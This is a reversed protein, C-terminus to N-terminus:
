RLKFRQEEIERVDRRTAVNLYSNINMLIIVIIFVLALVWSVVRAYPHPNQPASMASVGAIFFLFKIFLGIYETRVTADAVITLTERAGDGLMRVVVRRDKLAERLAISRLVIGVLAAFTWLMEPVSATGIGATM